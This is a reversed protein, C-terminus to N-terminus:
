EVVLQNGLYEVVQVVTQIVLKGDLHGVLYQVSLEVLKIVKGDELNGVLKAVLMMDMKEVLSRAM